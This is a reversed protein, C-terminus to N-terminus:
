IVSDYRTINTVKIIENFVFQTVFMSYPGLYLHYQKNLVKSNTKDHVRLVYNYICTM